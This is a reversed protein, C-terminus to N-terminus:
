YNLKRKIFIKKFVYILTFYIIINMILSHTYVKLLHMINNDIGSLLLPIYKIIEYITIALIFNIIEKKCYFKSYIYLSTIYVYTYYFPIDMFICSRLRSILFILLYFTNKNKKFPYLAIITMYTMDILFWSLNFYETSLNNSVILDVLLSFILILIEIM